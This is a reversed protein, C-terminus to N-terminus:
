LLKGDALKKGKFNTKETPFGCTEACTWYMGDKYVCDEGYPKCDQISEFSPLDGDGLYNVYHLDHRFESPIVTHRALRNWLVLLGVM